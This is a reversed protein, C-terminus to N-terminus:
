RGPPLATAPSEFPALPRSVPAIGSRIPECARCCLSPTRVDVATPSYNSDSGLPQSLTTELLSAHTQCLRTQWLPNVSEGFAPMTRQVLAQLAPNAQGARAACRRAPPAGLPLRVRVAHLSTGAVNRPLALGRRRGIGGSLGRPGRGVLRPGRCKRNWGNDIPRVHPCDPMPVLAFETPFPQLQQLGDAKRRKSLARRGGGGQIRRLALCSRGSIGALARATRGM